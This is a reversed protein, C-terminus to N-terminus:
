SSSIKYLITYLSYKSVKIRDSRRDGEKDKGGGGGCVCVCVRVFFGSKSEDFKM